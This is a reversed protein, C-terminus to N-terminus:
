QSKTRRNELSRAQGLTRARARGCFLLYPIILRISRHSTRIIAITITNATMPWM